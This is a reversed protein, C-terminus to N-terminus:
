KHVSLYPILASGGVTKNMPVTAFIYLLQMAISLRISPKAFSSQLGILTNKVAREVQTKLVIMM